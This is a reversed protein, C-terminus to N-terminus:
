ALHPLHRLAAFPVVLNDHLVAVYVGVLFAVLTIATIDLNVIRPNKNRVNLETMAKYRKFPSM